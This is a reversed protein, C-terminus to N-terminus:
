PSCMERAVDLQGPLTETDTTVTIEVRALSRCRDKPVDATYTREAGNLLYWGKLEQEVLAKGAADVGRVSITRIVIHYNGENRVGISLRGERMSLSALRARPRVPDPQLFVPVGVRSLFRVTAAGQSPAATPLEELYIRYTKEAAAPKVQTGIRILRDEGKKITMIKPFAVLDKTEEYVDKGEGDQTWRYLRLQLSLEGEGTNKVTMKETAKHADFVINIPSIDFSAAQAPFPMLLVTTLFAAFCLVNGM